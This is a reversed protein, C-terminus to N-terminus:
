SLTCDYCPLNAYTSTVSCLSYKSPMASIKGVGDRWFRIDEKIKEIVAQTSGKAVALDYSAEAAALRADALGKKALALDAESAGNAEAADVKAQAAALRADALGKKALALDAESAGNAEAADVKAQAAALRADALGKKALALDAESAIEIKAANLNQEAVRVDAEADSLRIASVMSAASAYALKSQALELALKERDDDSSANNLADSKTLIVSHANAVAKM